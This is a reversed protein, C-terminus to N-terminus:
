GKGQIITKIDIPTYDWNEVCVNVYQKGELKKTHLHGHILRVM